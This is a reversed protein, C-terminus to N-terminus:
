LGLMLTKVCLQLVIHGTFYTNIGAKLVRVEVNSVLLKPIIM